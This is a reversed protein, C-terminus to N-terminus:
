EAMGNDVLIDRVIEAIHQARTGTGQEIQTRCSFGDAIVHGEAARVKPFLEREGLEFSMQEHDKEFGWNGALGCCGTAIQEEEIGLADLILAAHQPDGLSREHCHVQTLATTSAPQIKGEQVLGRVKPAIVEAFPKTLEALRKLDPHDSLGTAEDTLMVTCSPELGVITLGQDLYPKMVKATHELVKRTMGLQGTSHWTLGCCVFGDPIVVNYGLTELTTIAAAAPGTDLNTNFSDPWLVVTEGKNHTRPIKRASTHAFSILPRDALGGLKRIMPALSPSRMSIDIIRPLLPVKHAVHGLLPLWGMVYHARPRIRGRYHHHLFEAKYTSMDVNVPCESACAKCSLCLDLAEHVEDSRYGDTISEGRFMESLLRARGRTSHVEDGTIQFSPCMADDESRCAAVGVCRNVANIMSGRDHPFQHIPTIDLQRQQPDMRLGRTVPDAWVLVGPNFIREPDFILKFEQFLERMEPSYMRDLLASRARGDGHEGSLSGGYSTVLTAAEGMFRHFDDIGHPTTFDFSIRLHVCGEGFHGFPIGQYDYKDMLAYLDRLYDTLHEPPVASDEWNPWAEGGDPLRTVIGAAAERIRWLHRMETPDVTIHHDIIAPVATTLARSTNLADGLTDAGIECYLWGGAALGDYDGPLDEGAHEQGPTTRLAALLDGGMGEITTVGPLRLSQAARAADFVTDFALVTLATHQPTPVLKVTLRTIIGTTGESGALARAMHTGLHHLGYGSVQRPFRGLERHILDDHESVLATLRAHIDPDDCGDANITIERGDALMLTIDILNDAATGHIISHPGCANNAVMGGITCRNHTSPDPGFTLGYETAANRLADCIVGPEVTATHKEPDIDLIRNFYRSTDIILGEGIANGAVSTGGGRGVISWGRAVALAVADRIDQLTRPEAVAAPVRRFIGADSTYAARTTMDTRLQAHSM